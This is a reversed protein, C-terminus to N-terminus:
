LTGGLGQVLYNGSHVEPLVSGVMCIIELQKDLDQIKTLMLKDM